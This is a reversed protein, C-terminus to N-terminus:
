AEFETYKKANGRAKAVPYRTENYRIKREAAAQLDIGMQDALRVLYIFVDAMESEVADHKATSLSRSDEQTLWLFHELVEGAEVSLAMALNKPSHFQEWDRAKAFAAIRRSLAQQRRMTPERVEPHTPM